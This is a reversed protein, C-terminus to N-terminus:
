CWSSAWQKPCRLSFLLRRQCAPNSDCLLRRSRGELDGQQSCTPPPCASKASCVGLAGRFRLSRGWSASSVVPGQTGFARDPCVGRQKPPCLARPRLGKGEYSPTPLLGSHKSCRSGRAAPAPKLPVHLDSSALLGGGGAPAPCPPHADPSLSRRWLSCLPSLM